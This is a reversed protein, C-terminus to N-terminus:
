SKRSGSTSRPRAARSSNSSSARINRRADWSETYRNADLSRHRDRGALRGHGRHNERTAAPCHAVAQRRSDGGVAARRRLRARAHRVLQRPRSRAARGDRPRARGVARGEHRDVAQRRRRRARHAPRARALQADHGSRRRRRRGRRVARRRGDGLSARAAVHRRAPAAGSATSAPPARPRACVVLDRRRAGQTRSFAGPVQPQSRPECRDASRRRARRRPRRCCRWRPRTRRPAPSARSATQSSSRRRRAHAAAVSASVTAGVDCTFLLM